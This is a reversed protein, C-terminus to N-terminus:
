SLDIFYQFDVEYDLTLIDNLISIDTLLASYLDHLGVGLIEIM